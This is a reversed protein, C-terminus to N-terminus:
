ITQVDTLGTINLLVNLAFMEVDALIVGALITGLYQLSSVGIVVVQINNVLKLNNDYLGRTWFSIFHLNMTFDYDNYRKMRRWLKHFFLQKSPHIIVRSSFEPSASITIKVTYLFWNNHFMNLNFMQIRSNNTFITVSRKGM